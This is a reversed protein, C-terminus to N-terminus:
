SMWARACAKGRSSPSARWGTSGAPVLGVGVSSSSSSWRWPRPPRRARSRDLLTARRGSLKGLAHIPL